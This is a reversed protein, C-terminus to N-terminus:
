PASAPKTTSSPPNVQVVRQQTFQRGTLEDTFTVKLTLEHHIPIKQWSLKFVYANLLGGGFWNQRAQATDFTWHGINPDTPQNLDFVDVTISGAAKLKDGQQDIPTLELKIGTDAPKSSDWNDGGTLRGLKFGSVTFLKDLRDEPLTPVTGVKKELAQISARETEIERKQAELQERLKENEVRLKNTVPSPSACGAIGVLLTLVSSVSFSMKIKKETNM